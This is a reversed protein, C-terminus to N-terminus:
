ADLLGGKLVVQADTLVVQAGTLVLDLVVHTLDEYSKKTPLYTNAVWPRTPGAM